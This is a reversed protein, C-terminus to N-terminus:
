YTESIMEMSELLLSLFLFFSVYKWGKCFGIIFGSLFQCIFKIRDNHALTHSRSPPCLLAASPPSSNTDTVGLGRMGAFGLDSSRRVYSLLYLLGVPISSLIHESCGLLIRALLFAFHASLFPPASPFFRVPPGVVPGHLSELRLLRSRTYHAIPLPLARSSLFPPFSVYLDGLKQGMGDEIVVTDGAIRSALENPKTTDFWGMEQM